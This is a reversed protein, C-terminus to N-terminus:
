THDPGSVGYLLPVVGGVFANPTRFGDSRRIELRTGFGLCEGRM